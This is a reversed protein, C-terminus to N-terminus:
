PSSMVHTTVGAPEPTMIAGADGDLQATVSELITLLVATVFDSTTRIQKIAVLQVTTKNVNPYRYTKM